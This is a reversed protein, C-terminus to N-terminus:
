HGGVTGDTQPVADKRKKRRRDRMALVEDMGTNGKGGGDVPHGHVSTGPSVMMVGRTSPETAIQQKTGSEVSSRLRAIRDDRQARKKAVVNDIEKNGVQCQTVPSDDDTQLLMADTDVVGYRQARQLAGVDIRSEVDAAITTTPVSSTAAVGVTARQSCIQKWRRENRAYEDSIHMSDKSPHGELMIERMDVFCGKLLLWTHFAWVSSQGPAHFTNTEHVYLTPTGQVRSSVLNGKEYLAVRVLHEVSPFLDLAANYMKIAWHDDTPVDAEYEPEQVVLTVESTISAIRRNM